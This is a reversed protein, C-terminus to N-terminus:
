GTASACDACLGSFLSHDADLSFGTAARVLDVVDDLANAPLPVIKGCARCNGHLHDHASGVALLHYRAAAGTRQGHSVIGATVLLDLTRYVTARHVDSAELAEVVEDATMPDSKDALASIVARRPYTVREGRERLTALAARVANAGSAAHLVDHDSAVM